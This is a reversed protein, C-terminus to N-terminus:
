GRQQLSAQNHPMMNEQQQVKHQLRQMGTARAEHRIDRDGRSTERSNLLAKPFERQLMDSCGIIVDAENAYLYKFGGGIGGSDDYSFRYVAHIQPYVHAPINKLAEASLGDASLTDYFADKTLILLADKADFGM